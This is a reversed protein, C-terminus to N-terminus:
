VLINNKRDYSKLQSKSFFKTENILEFQVASWSQTYKKKLNFARNQSFKVTSLECILIKEQHRLMIQSLLINM